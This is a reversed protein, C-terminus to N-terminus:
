SSNSRVCCVVLYHMRDSDRNREALQMQKSTLRSETQEGRWYIAIPDTLLMATRSCSQTASNLIADVDGQIIFASWGMEMRGQLTSPSLGFGMIPLKHAKATDRIKQLGAVFVPEERYPHDQGETNPLTGRPTWPYCMVETKRGNGPPAM